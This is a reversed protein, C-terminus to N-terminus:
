KIYSREEEKNSCSGGSSGSDGSKSIKDFPAQNSSRKTSTNYLLIEVLLQLIEVLQLTQQSFQHLNKSTTSTRYAEFSLIEMLKIGIKLVFYTTTSTTSITPINQFIDLYFTLKNM